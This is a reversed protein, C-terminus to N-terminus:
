RKRPGKKTHRKEPAGLFPTKEKQHGQRCGCFGPLSEFPLCAVRISPTWPGVFGKFPCNPMRSALRFFYAGTGKLNRQNKPPDLAVRTHTHTDRGGESSRFQLCNPLLELMASHTELPRWSTGWLRDSATRHSCGASGVLVCTSDAAKPQRM